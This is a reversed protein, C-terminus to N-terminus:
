ISSMIGPFLSVSAAPAESTVGHQMEDRGALCLAQRPSPRRRPYLAATCRRERHFGQLEWLLVGYKSCSSFVRFDDKTLRSEM